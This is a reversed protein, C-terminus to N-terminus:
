PLARRKARALDFAGWILLGPLVAVLAAAAPNTTQVSVVYLLAASAVHAIWIRRKTAAKILALRSILGYILFYSVAQGLLFAM